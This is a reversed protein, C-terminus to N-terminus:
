VVRYVVRSGMMLIVRRVEDGVVGARLGYDVTLDALNGLLELQSSSVRTITVSRGHPLCCTFLRTVIIQLLVNFLCDSLSSIVHHCRVSLEFCGFTIFLEGVM